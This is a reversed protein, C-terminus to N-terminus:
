QEEEKFLIVFVAALIAVAVLVAQEMFLPTIYGGLMVGFIFFFIVGYYEGSKRGIQEEQKLGFWFLKETASRLNGTCMTTAYPSGHLKRFGEVQMACVFSVLINAVTNHEESVGFAVFLLTAIEVAIIIQRWHLSSYEKYRYKIGESLLIGLIFALIPWFYALAGVHNGRALDLGMLVINGTQANAFVEGRAIYTYADLYGGVIALLAGVVLSESMQKKEM